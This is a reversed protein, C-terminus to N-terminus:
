KGRPEGRFEPRSSGIGADAVIGPVVAAFGDRLVDFRTIEFVPDATLFRARAFGVRLFEDRSGDVRYELQGLVAERGALSGFSLVAELVGFPPEDTGGIGVDGPSGVSSSVVLRVCRLCSADVALGTWASFSGRSLPRGSDSQYLGRERHSNARTRYRHTQKELPGGHDCHSLFHIADQLCCIDILHVHRFLAPQSGLVKTSTGVIM